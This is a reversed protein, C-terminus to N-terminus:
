LQYSKLYEHHRIHLHDDELIKRVTTQYFNVSSESTGAAEVMLAMVSAALVGLALSVRRLM